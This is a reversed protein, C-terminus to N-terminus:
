PAAARPPHRRYRAMRPALSKFRPSIRWSWGGRCHRACRSASHGSPATQGGWPRRWPAPAGESFPSASALGLLRMRHLGMESYASRISYGAGVHRIIGRNYLYRDVQTASRFGLLGAAETATVSKDTGCLADWTEAKPKLM